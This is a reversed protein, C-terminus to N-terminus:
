LVEVSEGRAVALSANHVVQRGRYSKQLGQAVLWRVGSVIFLIAPLLVLLGLIKNM